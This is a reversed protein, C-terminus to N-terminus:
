GDAGSGRGLCLIWLGYSGAGHGRGLCYKRNDLGIEREERHGVHGNAGMRPAATSTRACGVRIGIHGLWRAQDWRHGQLRPWEDVMFALKIEYQMNKYYKGKYPTINKYM